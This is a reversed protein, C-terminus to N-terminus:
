NTNQISDHKEKYEKLLQRSRVLGIDLFVVMRGILRDGTVGEDIWQQIKARDEDTLTRAQWTGDKNRKKM